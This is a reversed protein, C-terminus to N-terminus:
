HRADGEWGEKWRLIGDHNIWINRTGGSEVEGHIRMLEDAAVRRLESMDNPHCGFADHVMWIQPLSGIEEQYSCLGRIVLRMHEADLSHVFNPAIARVEADTDRDSSYIRSSLMGLSDTGEEPKLASKRRKIPESKPPALTIHTIEVGDEGTSWKLTTDSNASVMAIKGLGGKLKLAHNPIM